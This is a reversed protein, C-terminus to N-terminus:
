RGWCRRNDGQFPHRMTKDEISRNTNFLNQSRNTGKNQVKIFICERLDPIQMTFWSMAYTLLVFLGLKERTKRKNKVTVL